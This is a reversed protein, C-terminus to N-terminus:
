LGNCKAQLQEVEHQLSAIQTSRSDTDVSPSPSPAVTHLMSETDRSM